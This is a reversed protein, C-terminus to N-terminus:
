QLPEMSEPDLIVAGTTECWRDLLTDIASIEKTAVAIHREPQWPTAEPIPHEHPTGKSCEECIYRITTWDEAALGMDRALEGLQRVHEPDAIRAKLEFTEFDSPQLRELEDFVPIEGGDFRRFGQPAGDHLLLDGYRRESDPLPISLVRARAPDIRHCWLTERCSAVRIVVLGLNMELPGTGEPVELGYASWAARATQWDGLATAAIGANWLAGQHTPEIALARQNYALSDAWRHQRKALLGLNFLPIAWHPDADIAELYTREAEEHRGEQELDVAIENLKKARRKM